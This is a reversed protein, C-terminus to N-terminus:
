LLPNYSCNLLILLLLPLPLGASSSSLPKTPSSPSSSAAILAARPPMGSKLLSSPITEDWAAGELEVGSGATLGSSSWAFGVGARMDLTRVEMGPAGDYLFRLGFDFAWDWEGVCEMEEATAFACIDLAALAALVGM